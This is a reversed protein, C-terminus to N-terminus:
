KLLQLLKNYNEYSLGNISNVEVFHPLQEKLMDNDDDVIAYREIDKASDLYMKIEEGRTSSLKHPTKDFIPLNLQKGLDEPSIYFRWTSSLVINTNTLRCLKRILTVAIDDFKEFDEIVTEKITHPYGSYAMSSRCSNLVGDIDLFLIKM